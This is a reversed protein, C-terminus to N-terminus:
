AWNIIRTKKNQSDFVFFMFFMFFKDWSVEKEEWIFLNEKSNISVVINFRNFITKKEKKMFCVFISFLFIAIFIGTIRKMCKWQNEWFRKDNHSSNGKGETSQPLCSYYLWVDFTVFLGISSKKDYFKYLRAFVKKFAVMARNMRSNSCILKHIEVMKGGNFLMRGFVRILFHTFSFSSSSFQPWFSIQVLFIELLFAFFIENFKWLRHVRM